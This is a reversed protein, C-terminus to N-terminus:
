EQNFDYTLYEIIGDMMEPTGYQQILARVIAALGYVEVNLMYKKEDLIELIEASTNQEFDNFEKLFAEKNLEMQEEINDIKDAYEPLSEKTEEFDM